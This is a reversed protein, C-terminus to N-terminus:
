HTRVSVVLWIILGVYIHLSYWLCSCLIVFSLSLAVALQTATANTYLDILVWDHLWLDSSMQM